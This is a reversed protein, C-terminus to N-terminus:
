KNYIPKSENSFYLKFRYFVDENDVVSVGCINEILLSIQLYMIRKLIRCLKNVVM